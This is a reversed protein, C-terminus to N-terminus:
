LFTIREMGAVPEQAFARSECLGTCFGPDGEDSRRDFGEFEKTVFGRCPRESRFQINRDDRSNRGGCGDLVGRGEQGPLRASARDHQLRDRAAASPAHADHM